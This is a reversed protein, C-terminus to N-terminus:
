SGFSRAPASVCASVGRGHSGARGINPTIRLNRGGAEWPDAQKVDGIATSLKSPFKGVARMRTSIPSGTQGLGSGGQDGRGQGQDTGIGRERRGLLRNGRIDPRFRIGGNERSQAGFDGRAAIGQPTGKRADAGRLVRRASPAM